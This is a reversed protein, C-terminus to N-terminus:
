ATASNGVATKMQKRRWYLLSAAGLLILVSIFQAMRISDTLMLSDTRM